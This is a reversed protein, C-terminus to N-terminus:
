PRLDPARDAVFRWLDAAFRKAKRALKSRMRNDTPVPEALTYPIPIHPPTVREGGNATNLGSSQSFGNFGGRAMRLVEDRMEDAIYQRQHLSMGDLRRAENEREQAAKVFMGIAQTTHHM